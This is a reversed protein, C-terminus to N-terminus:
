APADIRPGVRWIKGRHIEVFCAFRWNYGDGPYAKCPAWEAPQWGEEPVRKIWYWGIPRM